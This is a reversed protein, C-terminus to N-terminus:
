PTVVVTGTHSVNLHDHYGYTGATTFTFSYMADKALGLGADFGSLGTHAPHPDSAPWALATAKNVWTVKGGAKVTVSAPAFGSETIEVKAENKTETSTTIGLLVVRQATWTGGDIIGKVNLRMGAKIDGIALVGRGLVLKTDSTYVVTIEKNRYERAVRDGSKVKIVLKKATTDLSVVEGKVEFKPSKAAVRRATAKDNEIRGSTEAKDGAKLNALTTTAGNRKIKTSADTYVVLESKGRVLKSGKPNKLTLTGVVTDVAGIVGTAEFRRAKQEQKQREPKKGRENDNDAYAVPTALMSFLVLSSTIKTFTNM